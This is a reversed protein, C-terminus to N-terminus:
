RGHTGTHWIAVGNPRYIVANGDNQILLFAGPNGWTGSFRLPTAGAYLVLNGDAQMSFFSADPRNWTGTHWVARGTFNNYLVVNGDYQFVLTNRGNCATVSQGKYLAQGPYLVGCSNYVGSFLSRNPTNQPINGLIGRTAYENIVNQAQAPNSWPHANLYKAVAGAVHPAAMSTGNYAVYGGTYKASIINEGPAFVDVVSGFNSFSARNEHINSAGVTIAESVRAPTFNNADAGSNGAAIVTTVGSYILNRVAQELLPNSGPGGLSLNAVAPRHPQSRVWDIGGVISSVSGFIGCGLVRVGVVSAGKAVGVSSGAITAAVHTGHGTCDQGNRGDGVFDAGIWARGGFEPHWPIIGSDIVYVRVGAGTATYNYSGTFPLLRQDVRDLNWIPNYQTAASSIIGDEIVYEVNPNQSLALAQEESMSASFGLVASNYVANVIAGYTNAVDQALTNVAQRDVDNLEVTYNEAPQLSEVDGGPPLDPPSPPNNTDDMGDPLDPPNCDSAIATQGERTSDTTQTEPNTQCPVVSNQDGQNLEHTAARKLLINDFSSNTSRSQDFGSTVLKSDSTQFVSNKFKVIYKGPIPNETRIINGQALVEPSLCCLGIVWVFLSARLIEFLNKM